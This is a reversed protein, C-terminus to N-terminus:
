QTVMVTFTVSQTANGSTATVTITDTEPAPGPAACGITFGALALILMAGLAWQVRVRRQRISAILAAGLAVLLTGLALIALPPGTVPAHPRHLGPGVLASGVTTFTVMVQTMPATGDAAPLTNGSFGPASSAFTCGGLNPLESCAFQVNAPFDTNATTPMITLTTSASAGGTVSASVPSASMMFNTGVGFSENNSTGGATTVSVAQTPTTANGAIAFTATITTSNVVTANSVTIGQGASVNVKFASESVFNTGMITVTTITSNLYGGTPSISTITPPPPLVTFLQTGSTGGATTVSVSQVGLSANAALVLSVTLTTSNIVNTAMVTIGTGSINVTTAGAIFNTGTLTETVTSGQAGSAQSLMTLTPAPPGGKFTVSQPSGAANDTVQLTTSEGAGTSPTYTFQVACSSNAEIRIPLSGCTGGGAVQTFDAANGGVLSLGTIILATDGPNSLTLATPASTGGLTQNFQLPNPMAVFSAFSPGVVALVVGTPAAAYTLNFSDGPALPPFATTTFTGNLITPEILVYSDGPSPTFGNIATVSLTGTLTATGNVVLQSYNTGAATGGLELALTGASTQTYNGNLTLTEATDVMTGTNLNVTSLSPGGLQATSFTVTGGNITLVSNSDLATLTSGRDFTVSGSSVTTPGLAVREGLGFDVEGGSFTTTGSVGYTGNLLSSTAGASAMWIVNGAGSFNPGSLTQAAGFLLTAGAQAKYGCASCSSIGGVGALDLTGAMVNLTGGFGNVFPVNITTTATGAVSKQFTGYNSVTGAGNIGTSDQVDFTSTGTGNGNSLTANNSLLLNTAPGSMAGSGNSLLTVTDVTPTGTIALGGNASLTNGSAGNITGGSFSFMGTVPLTSAGQSSPLTLTGSGSVALAGGITGNVMALTGGSINVNNLTSSIESPVSAGAPGYVGSITLSGGSITLSGTSSISAVSQNLPPLDAALTVTAGGLCVNDFADPLRAPSWDSATGWDTPTLIPPIFFFNITCGSPSYLSFKALFADSAGGGYTVQFAQIGTFPPPLPSTPSIPFNTSNTFGSVVVNGSPDIFLGTGADDGSGGLYTSMLQRSGTMDLVAFFADGCLQTTTCNAAATGGGYVTTQSANATTPFDASDTVGTVYANGAADVQLGFALDDNSGGLYTGYVLATGAPNIKVLFADGCAGGTKSCDASGGGFKTQFAGATTPFNNSDTGGSVYANGSRDVVIGAAGDEGSGGLYTSYVIATATPDLKTVFGDGCVMNLIPGCTTGGGGFGGPQIPNPNPQVPFDVSTTAGAVYANDAFDVAISFARNAGSGGLFTSYILSLTGALTTNLKAVFVGPEQPTATCSPCTRQVVGPTTPFDLANTSGTVYVSNSSDLALSCGATLGTNAAGGSGGLLTSYLLTFGTPNLEAVFADTTGTFGAPLGNMTPFNSSSTTGCIYANGSADVAIGRGEDESSGGLYTAYVLSTGTPNLEAVFADGCEFAFASTCSAPAQAGGFTTQYAGTTIPFPPASGPTSTTGGTVYVNGSSDTTVGFAGDALGGGLYTSFVVTPDIVLPKAADYPAVEFAVESDSKLIYRGVILKEQPGASGSRPQYVRPKRYLVEAGGAHVVLDGQANIELRKAGSFSMRIRQPDAGPAIVFDYELQQQNGYYELDVGPYVSEYKVKGYTPVNTHWHAPDNGLFYNTRGPFPEAGSIRPSPNGGPLKMRVTATKESEWTVVVMESPTLLLAHDPGRSMFKVAPDTQGVNPEFYLPLKAFTELARRKSTGSAGAPLSRAGTRASSSSARAALSARGTPPAQAYLLPSSVAALVLAIGSVWRLKM